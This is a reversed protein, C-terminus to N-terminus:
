NVDSIVEGEKISELQKRTLGFESAEAFNDAVAGKHRSDIGHEDRLHASRNQSIKRKCKRCIQRVIQEEM